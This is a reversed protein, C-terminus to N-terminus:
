TRPSTEAALEAVTPRMIAAAKMGGFIAVTWALDGVAMWRYFPLAAVFCEVLGAATHPYM